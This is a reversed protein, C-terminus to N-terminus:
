GEYVVTMEDPLSEMSGINGNAINSGFCTTSNSSSYLSVCIASPRCEPLKMLPESENMLIQVVKRMRPRLMFDPHLCALGVVICRKVQEECYNGELKQDVCKLIDGKEYVNWVSDVLSNEEMIGRSRRGCVIELVVMGFSYVDSEPTARGTFSVEPALYGPTGAVMTTVYSDTQLLRALGFDGLHPNFDSDLMINNPKVDRHVVPVGCEEHLYVLVSALGNLIQYRTKWNLFGKGIFKDLSGNPMYEYVLLLQDREHCWGQLQVLNKHRLRGITCIEALYEKEGQTSTASIKKVAITTRDQLVGQYVSGFGGSGLLRERSFHHTAKSLQRYTFIRPANAANRTMNEMDEKRINRENNRQIAKLALPSAIAAVILLGVFIPIIIIVFMKTKDRQRNKTLSDLPLEYSTFNWDLIRHTESLTGTSATFGVYVYNPVTDRMSISHNLFNVLPNEAYALDISIIKKYGDYTIRVRIEKGSKLDIGSKNLSKVSVPDVVSTTDIAVHNGDPDDENKFTDLEVALQSLAGGQTSPDLIGIFSGFSEPPSPKNDQAMIFSMGDGGVSDPEPLIVVTFTTSFFAPWALVPHKYLVRGVMFTPSKVAVQQEPDPTLCLSGNSVTVSGMCILNSGNGCSSSDFSPFSFTFPDM